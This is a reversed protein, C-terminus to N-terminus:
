EKLLPISFKTYYFHSNINVDITEKWDNISLDELKGTPGAIGVNNILADINDIKNKLKSFYDEVEDVNNTNVNHIYFQKEFLEHQSIKDLAENNKDSIYVIAGNEMCAKAITWGIGDAAASIIINKRLLKKQNM